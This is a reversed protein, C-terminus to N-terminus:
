GRVRVLADVANWRGNSFVVPNLDLEAIGPSGAAIRSVLVVLDALAGEDVPPRGRFGRLLRVGRLSGIMRHATAADVPALGLAVDDMAEALVGGSGVLVFRGLVPDETVGVIVETGPAFEAVLYGHDAPFADDIAACAARVGAADRVDLVVGGADSKHGVDASSVKVVVPFGIREALAVAADATDAVGHAVVAVGLRSLVALGEAESLMGEASPTCSELASSADIGGSGNPGPRAKKLAARREAFRGLGGVARVVADVHTSVALDAARLSDLGQTHLDGGLWLHILPTRATRSLEILSDVRGPTHAVPHPTSAQVVLPFAPDELYLAVTEAFRHPETIIGGLDTPNNAAGLQLLPGLRERMREDPQPLPVGEGALGDALLVATGGSHTVVGAGPGSPIGSRAMLEAVDYLEEPTRTTTVGFAEFLAEYRRWPAALAGTHSRMVAAGADSTGMKCVVVPKGLELARRCGRAFAEADRITELLMAVARIDEREVLVELAEGAGLDAENGTSVSTAFGGGREAALNQLYSASGGSQSILGVPGARLSEASRELCTLFSVVTRNAADILGASNPGLLRLGHSHALRVLDAQRAAGESGAEAFGGGLILGGGAGAAASEALAGPIGAAPVAYVVADPSGPLDGIRAVTEVDHLTGGTEAARPNVGWIDGTFGFRQLNRVIRAGHKQPDASLGVVAVSRPALLRQLAPSTM